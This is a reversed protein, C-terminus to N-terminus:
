GVTFVVYDYSSYNQHLAPAHRLRRIVSPSVSLLQAFGWFNKAGLIGKGDLNHSELHLSHQRM